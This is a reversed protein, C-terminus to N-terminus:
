RRKPWLSPSSGLKVWGCIYAAIRLCGGIERSRRAAASRPLRPRGPRSRGACWPRRRLMQFLLELRGRAIQRVLRVPELAAPAPRLSGPSGTSPRRLMAVAIESSSSRRTPSTSVVTGSPTCTWLVSCRMRSALFAINSVPSPKSQAVASASANPVGARRPCLADAQGPWSLPRPVNLWRCATQTSWSVRRSICGARGRRRRGSRPGRCGATALEAHEAEFIAIREGVRAREHQQSACNPSKALPACVIMSWNMALPSALHSRALPRTM